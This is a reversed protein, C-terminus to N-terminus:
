KLLVCKGDRIYVGRTTPESSLRRGDLTFWIGAQVTNAFSPKIGIEDDFSIPLNLIDALLDSESKGVNLGTYFVRGGGVHDWSIDIGSGATYLTCNPGLGDAASEANVYPVVTDSTYHWLRVPRRPQWGRTLNNSELALHLDECVGRETPLAEFNAANSFYEYVAPTVLKDIYATGDSNLIRRFRGNSDDNKYLEKLAKTVDETTKEKEPNCKDDIWQLIGTDIFDQELYDEMRHERLYPSSAILGKLILPLVVPMKLLGGNNNIYYRIHAIPDYPGDGCVSGAFHLENALENQEIFRQTALAVSGGQSYGVTVTKWEPRLPNRYDAIVPSEQYLAIGYRTADTVQRATLEQNLYPHPVDKTVGYGEYDPMIVLNYYLPNSEPKRITTGCSAHLMLMGVDTLWSGTNYYESPSEKNSTITVHCGVIVNNTYAPGEDPFAALASLVLPQGDAGTSPYLYRFWYMDYWKSSEGDTFDSAEVRCSKGRQAELRKKATGTETNWEIGRMVQLTDFAQRASNYVVTDAATVTLHGFNEVSAQGLAEQWCCALMLLVASVTQKFM